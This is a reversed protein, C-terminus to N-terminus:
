EVKKILENISVGYLTSLELLKGQGLAHIGREFESLHGPNLSTQRVVDVISLGLEERIERARLM